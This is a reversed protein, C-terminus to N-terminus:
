FSLSLGYNPTNLLADQMRVLIHTCGLVRALRCQCCAGSVEMGSGLALDLMNAEEVRLERDVVRWTISYVFFPHSALTRLRLRLTPTKDHFLVTRLIQSTTRHLIHERPNAEHLKTPQKQNHCLALSPPNLHIHVTRRFSRSLYLYLYIM